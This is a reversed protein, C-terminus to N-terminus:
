LVMALLICALILAHRVCSLADTVAQKDDAPRATSTGYDPREDVVGRRIVAGGLRVCAAHALAAEPWGANPSAHSRAQRALHHLCIYGGSVIVLLAATIRAPLYNAVDDVKAAWWGFHYYHAHRYGWMADLTNIMRYLVAGEVGAVFFWFLPAIVADSANEALSELAARHSQERTMATCDRSVIRSVATRSQETSAAQVVAQVHSFLSSWGLSLWLLLVDWGWSLTHLTHCLLLSLAIVLSWALIGNLRKDGYMIREAYMAFSGFWAVPHWRNSPEAVRWELLLALAFVLLLLVNPTDSLM